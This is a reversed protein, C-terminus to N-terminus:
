THYIAKHIQLNNLLTFNKSQNKPKVEVVQLLFDNTNANQTSVTTTSRSM